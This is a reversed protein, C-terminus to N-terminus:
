VFDQIVTVALYEKFVGSLCRGCLVPCDNIRNRTVSSNRYKRIFGPVYGGQLNVIM